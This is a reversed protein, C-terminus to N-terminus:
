NIIIKHMINTQIKKIFFTGFLLLQVLALAILTWSALPCEEPYFVVLALQRIDEPFSHFGDFRM